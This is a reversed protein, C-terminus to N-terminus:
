LTLGGDVLLVAGHIYDSDSSALFLASKAIDIPLGIRGAPLKKTDERTKNEEDPTVNETFFKTEIVGPCIINARIGYKGYDYALQKTYGVMAHKASIYAAGGFKAFLSAVSGVNIIIGSNKILMGNLAANTVLYCGKMDTDFVKNWLSEDTQHSPAFKDFYGANNVLIDVHGYHDLTDKFIQDVSSKESIDGAVAFANGNNANIADAVAKSKELKIGAVVVKAGEQAFLEAIAKGIGSSAGTVLAVKNKLKGNM